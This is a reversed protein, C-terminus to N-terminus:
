PVREAIAEPPPVRQLQYEGERYGKTRMLAAVEDITKGYAVPVGNVLAVWSDSPAQRRVESTQPTQGSGTTKRKRLLWWCM